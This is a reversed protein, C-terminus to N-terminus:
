KEFYFNPLSKSVELFEQKSVIAHLDLFLEMTLNLGILDLINNLQGITRVGFIAGDIKAVCILWILSLQATSIEHNKAVNRLENLLLFFDNRLYSDLRWGRTSRSDIPRYNDLTYERALLGRALPRYCYAERKSERIMPMFEEIMKTEILNGHFQFKSIKGSDNKLLEPLQLSDFNSYGIELIKGELKLEALSELTEGFPTGSDPAHINLVDLYDTGLSDLAQTISKKLGKANQKSVSVSFVGKSDLARELGISCWIKAKDRKVKLAKGLIGMAMGNGYLPAVDFNYIGREMATLIIQRSNKEDVVGGFPLCGLILVSPEIPSLTYM